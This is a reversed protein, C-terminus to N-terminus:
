KIVEIIQLRGKVNSYCTIYKRNKLIRIRLVQYFSGAFEITDGKKM